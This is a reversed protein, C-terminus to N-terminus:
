WSAQTPVHPTPDVQLKNLTKAVRTHIFQNFADLAADSNGNGQDWWKCIEGMVYTKDSPAFAQTDRVEFTRLQAAVALREKKAPGLISADFCYGICATIALTFFMIVGVVTWPLWDLGHSGAILRLVVFLPLGFCLLVGAIAPLM